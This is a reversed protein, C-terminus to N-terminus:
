GITDTVNLALEGFLNTGTATLGTISPATNVAADWLTGQNGLPLPVFATGNWTYASVAIPASSSGSTTDFSILFDGPTRAPLQPCGPSAPTTSPDAQNFEYDIHADGNNSLRSWNAYLFQKQVGGAPFFRVAIEGAVAPAGNVSIESVIDDKPPASGAPCVWTSQDNEKSGQGFIDDTSGTGDTFTTIAAPFPSSDWDVPEGPPVLHNVVLNGDIEFSGVMNGALTGRKAVPTGILLLLLLLATFILLRVPRPASSRIVRLCQQSRMKTTM